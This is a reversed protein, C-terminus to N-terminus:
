AAQARVGPGVDVSWRTVPMRAMARARMAWARAM